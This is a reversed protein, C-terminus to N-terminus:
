TLVPDLPLDLTRLRYGIRADLFINETAAITQVEKQKIFLPCSTSTTIYDGISVNPLPLNQRECTEDEKPVDKGCLRCRPRSKCFKRIHGVRFCSFCTKVRPVFLVEYSDYFLFQRPLIQGAFKLNVSTFPTYEVGSKKVVRRNLRKIEIVYCSSKLNLKLEQDTVSTPIGRIIGSRM